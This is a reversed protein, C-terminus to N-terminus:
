YQNRAMTKTINGISSNKSSEEHTKSQETSIKSMRSCIEQYQKM